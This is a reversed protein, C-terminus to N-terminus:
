SIKAKLAKLTWWCNSLAQHLLRTQQLSQQQLVLNIMNASHLYMKTRPRGKKILQLLYHCANIKKTKNKHVSLLRCCAVRTIMEKKNQKQANLFSSLSRTSTTTNKKQKHAGLSSLSSDVNTMIKNQKQAGLSSSSLGTITTMKKQKTLICGFYVIVLWTWGQNTMTKKKNNNFFYTVCTLIIIFIFKLYKWIIL